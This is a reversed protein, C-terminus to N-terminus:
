TSHLHLIFAYFTSVQLTVKIIKEWLIFCMLSILSGLNALCSMIFNDHFIHNTPLNFNVVSYYSAKFLTINLSVLSTMINFPGLPCMQTDVANGSAGLALM